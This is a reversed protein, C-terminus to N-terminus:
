MSMSTLSRSSAMAIAARIGNARVLVTSTRGTRSPGGFYRRRPASLVTGPPFRGGQDRQHHPEEGREDGVTAPPQRRIAVQGARRHEPGCSSYSAAKESPVSSSCRLIRWPTARDSARRSPNRTRVSQRISGPRSARQSRESRSRILATTTSSASTPVALNAIFTSHLLGVSILRSAGVRAIQLELDNNPATPKDQNDHHSSKGEYGLPRQNM